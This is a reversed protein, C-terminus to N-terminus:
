KRKGRVNMCVRGTLLDGETIVPNFCASGCGMSTYKAFHEEDRAVSSLTSNVTLQVHVFDRQIRTGDLTM